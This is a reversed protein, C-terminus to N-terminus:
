MLVRRTQWYKDKWYYDDLKSVMVGRKTSAHLFKGAEIYIGVHRVKESTKFFVLDGAQLNGRQIKQGVQAQLKTIRPLAIGFKHLYTLHVLGSCDIGQKSLGGWQYRTGQWQQHQQYLTAKITATDVPAIVRPSTTSHKGQSSPSQVGTSSCGAALVISLLLAFQPFQKRM